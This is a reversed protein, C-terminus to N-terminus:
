PWPLSSLAPRLTSPIKDAASDYQELPREAYSLLRSISVPSSSLSSCNSSHLLQLSLVLYDLQDLPTSAWLIDHEALLSSNHLTNLLSLFFLSPCSDSLSDTITLHPSSCIYVYRITTLTIICSYLTSTTLTSSSPSLFQSSSSPSAQPSPAPLALIYKPFLGETKPLGVNEPDPLQEQSKTTPRPITTILTGRNLPPSALRALNQAHPKSILRTSLGRLVVAL